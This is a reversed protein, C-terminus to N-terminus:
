FKIERLWEGVRELAQSNLRHPHNNQTLFAVVAQTSVNGKANEGGYPCGGLGNLAADIVRIGKSLAVNINELARGNTDHCHIALQSAPTEKLVEDLMTAISKPTGQGTTDGLSVEFCGLARLRKTVSAVIKPDTAGSYPCHVVCSVYGRVKLGEARVRAMLPEFREFSEEITCNINKKNFAESAATFISIHRAGVALAGELGQQNPVLLSYDVGAHKTIGQFVAESGAMQPVWKPSVMSGVEIERFGCVSLLNILEIREAVSFLRKENQLGDRPSVEVLEIM